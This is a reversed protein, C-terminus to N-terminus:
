WGHFALAEAMPMISQAYQTVFYFHCPVASLVVVLLIYTTSIVLNLTGGFGAAIRAPSQERPNPFRAGLGVAIGSLGLCLVVCTLQHFGLVAPAVRLMVDSLLVLLSCPLLSNGVAFLFKGLLLTDRRIPLLGLLWFRRSELSIMPFVFRTTFTSMLLGVVSLNLLSIMSVWGAYHISYSFRRINLFYLALLGVFILFQSWQVPDRRFLRMDKIVLLSLTSPLFRLMWALCRDFHSARIRKPRTWAQSLGSYASRYCRRAMGAALQRFFLANSIMLVLFMLGDSWQRGAGALLGASVWWSPLLRYETLQLRGLMEQFWGATLLDGEPRVLSSVLWLLVALLAAGGALLVHARHRPLGYVVALCLVAGIAAPIHIFAILLPPLMAYYYWPADSVLGFALVLPSGLLLFGWSSLLVAEGFKHLFLQEDRVPLTLLMAIERCRFLSGYLILSSSFILMLMLAAFFTSCVAEVIQDHTPNPVTQRLFLFGESLLQFLALWLVISLGLVLCLRFRARALAQRLLTKGM